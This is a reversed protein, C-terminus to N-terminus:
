AGSASHFRRLKGLNHFRVVNLSFDGGLGGLSGAQPRASRHHGSRHVTGRGRELRVLAGEAREHPVELQHVALLM